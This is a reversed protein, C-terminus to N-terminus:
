SGCARIATGSTQAPRKTGSRTPQRALSGLHPGRAAFADTWAQDPEALVLRWTTTTM